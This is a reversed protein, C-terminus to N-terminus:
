RRFSGSFGFVLGTSVNEVTQICIAFAKIHHPSCSHPHAMHTETWDSGRHPPVAAVSRLKANYSSEVVCPTESEHAGIACSDGSKHPWDVECLGTTHTDRKTATTRVWLLSQSFAKRGGGRCVIVAWVNEFSLKALVCSRALYKHWFGSSIKRCMKNRLLSFSCSSFSFFCQASWVTEIFETAAHVLWFRAMKLRSWPGQYLGGDFWM